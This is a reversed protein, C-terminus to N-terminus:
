NPAEDFELTEEAPVAESESPTGEAELAAEGAAEGAPQDSGARWTAPAGVLTVLSKDGLRVLRTARTRMRFRCHEGTIAERVAAYFAQM